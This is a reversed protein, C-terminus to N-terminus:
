GANPCYEHCHGTATGADLERRCRKADRCRTCVREVDRALGLFRNRMVDPDLGRARMMGEMLDTNDPPARSLAILDDRTIGLDDAMVRFDSDSLNTFEDGTRTHAKMWDVLRGFLGPGNSYTASAFML